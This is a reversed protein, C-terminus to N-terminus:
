SAPIPTWMAVLTRLAATLALPQDLMIHHGANPIEIIPPRGDLREALAACETAGLMGHEGRLVAVSCPISGVHDPTFRPRDFIRRDFKWRWGAITEVASSAAVHRLVYPLAPQQPLPRFHAMAEDESAYLRSERSARRGRADDDEPTAARLPSDVVVAATLLDGHAAATHLAVFGGMSHGVVTPRMDIRTTAAVALVERAWTDVDYRPRWDSDGHGSLDLAVVQGYSTLLPGIHDWWGSHAAGGHILVICHDSSGEWSRFAIRAGDV